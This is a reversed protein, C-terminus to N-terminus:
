KLLYIHRQQKEIQKGRNTKYKDTKRILFVVVSSHISNRFLFLGSGGTCVTLTMKSVPHKAKLFIQRKLKGQSKLPALHM